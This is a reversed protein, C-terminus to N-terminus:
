NCVAFGVKRNLEPNRIKEALDAVKQHFITQDFSILNFHVHSDSRPSEHGQQM